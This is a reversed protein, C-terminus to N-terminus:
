QIIKNIIAVNGHIADGPTCIHGTRKQWLYWAITARKNRIAGNPNDKEDYLGKIMPGGEEDFWMDFTRNSINPDFGSSREITSCGILPYMQHFTPKEKFYSTEIGGDNGFQGEDAKTVKWLILKYMLIGM